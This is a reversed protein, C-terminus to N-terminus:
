MASIEAKTITGATLHPEAEKHTLYVIDGEKFTHQQTEHAHRPYIKLQEAEVRYNDCPEESGRRLMHQTAQAGIALLLVCVPMSGIGGPSVSAKVIPAKPSVMYTSGAAPEKAAVFAELGKRHHNRSATIEFGLIRHGKEYVFDVENDKADKWWSLRGREMLALEKLGAAVANELYDARIDPDDIPSSETGRIANSM